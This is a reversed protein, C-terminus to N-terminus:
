GNLLTEILADLDQRSMAGLHTDVVRGDADIAVTFPIANVGYALAGEADSDFYLPFTYANEEMFRITNETKEYSGDVLDMMLFQIQDAYEASAADFYPLESQCPGCWTAWFNLIVPKGRFESLHLSNGDRDQFSFDAALEKESDNEAETLVPEAPETTAPLKDSGTFARYLYASGFLLLVIALILLITIGNRKM